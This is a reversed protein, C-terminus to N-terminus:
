RVVRDQVRIPHPDGSVGISFSDGVEAWPVSFYTTVPMARFCKRNLDDTRAEVVGSSVVVLDPNGRSCGDYSFGYAFSETTKIARLKAAVEPEPRVTRSGQELQDALTAVQEAVFVGRAATGSVTGLLQHPAGDVHLAQSCATLVLLLLSCGFWPGFRRGDSRLPTRTRHLPATRAPRDGV